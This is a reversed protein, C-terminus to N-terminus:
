PELGLFKSVLPHWDNPSFGSSPHQIRIALSNHDGDLSAYLGCDSERNGARVSSRDSSFAPMHCWLRYGLAIIHTPKLVSIVEFFPRAGRAFMEETPSQRPGPAAVEQVYNYFAISNWFELRDIEWHKQGTIVQGINTWFRHNWIGSAFNQVCEITWNPNPEDEGYHSEGLVLLRGLETRGYRQGMWPRFFISSSRSDLWAESQEINMINARAASADRVTAARGAGGANREPDTAILVVPATLAAEATLVRGASSATSTTETTNTCETQAALADRAM